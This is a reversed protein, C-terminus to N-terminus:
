DDVYCGCGGFDLEDIPAAAEINERHQRLTLPKVPGGRRDRLISVDKGVYQRFREEMKEHYNYREPFNELLLKFHAQGAKVCFGGCNNHPFGMAYLRPPKIGILILEDLMGRKSMYPPKIMPAEYIYPLKRRRLGLTVGTKTKKGGEFRNIESWDIGVYVVCESPTFRSEIWKDGLERKLIRSCPDARTNAMMRQKHFVSWPTRGDAVRVLPAGINDAAEELFRYLDKDEIMTDTFLLIMNEPGFEKKVRQAAMWSGVGGSFLIIHKKKPKKM